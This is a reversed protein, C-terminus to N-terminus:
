PYAVLQTVHLLALHLSQACARPSNQVNDVLSGYLLSLSLQKTKPSFLMKQLMFVM